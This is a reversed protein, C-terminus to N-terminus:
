EADRKALYMYDTNKIFDVAKAPDSLIAQPVPKYGIDPDGYEWNGKSDTFIIKDLKPCASFAERMIVRITSPLTVSELNICGLFGPYHWAQIADVGEPLVVSKISFNMPIGLFDYDKPIVLATEEGVYGIITSKHLGLSENKEVVVYGEETTKMVSPEDVTTHIIFCTGTVYSSPGTSVTLASLNYIEVIVSFCGEGIKEVSRGITATSLTASLFARTGIEKITDPIIVEFFNCYCFGYDNIKTVPKGNYESPIEFTTPFDLKEVAKPTLNNFNDRVAYAEEENKFIGVSYSEGDENLTYQLNALAQEKKKEQKTKEGKNEEGSESGINGTLGSLAGELGEISIECGSSCIPMMLASVLAVVRCMWKKGLKM